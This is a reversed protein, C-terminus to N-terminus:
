NNIKQGILSDLKVQKGLDAHQAYEKKHTFHTSEADEVCSTLNKEVLNQHHERVWKINGWKHPYM